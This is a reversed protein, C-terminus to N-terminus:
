PATQQGFSDYTAWRVDLPARTYHRIAGALEDAMAEDPEIGPKAQVLVTAAEDGGRLCFAGTTRGALRSDRYLGEAVAEAHLPIGAACVRHGRGYVAVCPDNARFCVPCGAEAAIAEIRKVSLLEGLHGIRYRLLPLRVDSSLTSILLAAPPEEGPMTEVFLTTPDYHFLMPCWPEGSHFLADRLRPNHHARRRAQITDHSEYFLPLGQEGAGMLAVIKDDHDADPDGGVLHALYTRCNEAIPGDSLAIHVRHQPWDVGADQGDELVKKIFTAEGLVVVEDFDRAFVKVADIAMEARAGVNAVTVLRSGLTVDTPLCNVLLTRQDHVRFFYDLATDLWESQQETDSSALLGFPLLGVRDSTGAIWSM